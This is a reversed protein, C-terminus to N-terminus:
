NLPLIGGKPPPSRPEIGPLARRKKKKFKMKLKNQPCDRVLTCYAVKLMGQIQKADESYM